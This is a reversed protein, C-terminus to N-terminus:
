PWAQNGTSTVVRTLYGTQETRSTLRAATGSGARARAAEAARPYHHRARYTVLARHLDEAQRLQRAFEYEWGDSRSTHITPERDIFCVEERRDRAAQRADERDAAGQADALVEAATRGGIEGRALAVASVVEGRAEAQSRYMALATEAAQEARDQREAEARRAERREAAAEAEMWRLSRAPWQGLVTESM